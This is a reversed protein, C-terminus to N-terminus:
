QTLEDTAHQSCVRTGDDDAASRAFGSEADRNFVCSSPFGPESRDVLYLFGIRAKKM